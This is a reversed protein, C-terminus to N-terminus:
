FIYIYIYIYMYESNDQLYTLHFTPLDNRARQLIRIKNSKTYRASKRILKPLDTSTKKKKQNSM